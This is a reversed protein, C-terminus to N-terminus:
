LGSACLCESRLYIIETPPLLVCTILHYSKKRKINLKKYPFIFINEMNGINEM